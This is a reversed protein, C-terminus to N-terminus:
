MWLNAEWILVIIVASVGLWSSPVGDPVGVHTAPLGPVQVMKMQQQQMGLSKLLFSSRFCLMQSKFLRTCYHESDWERDQQYIRLFRRAWAQCNAELCKDSLETRRIPIILLIIKGVSNDAHLRIKSNPLKHCFLLCRNWTCLCFWVVRLCLMSANDKNRTLNSITKWLFSHFVNTSSVIADYTTCYGHVEM